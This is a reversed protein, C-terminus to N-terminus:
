QTEGDDDEVIEADVIEDDGATAGESDDAAFDGPADGAAAAAQEYM